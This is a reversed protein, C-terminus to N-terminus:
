EGENLYKNKRVEKIIKLDEDTLPKKSYVCKEIFVALGKKFDILQQKDFKYLGNRRFKKKMNGGFLIIAINPLLPFYLIEIEKTEPDPTNCAVPNDCTFISDSKDVFVGISMDSILDLIFSFLSDGSLERLEKTVSVTKLLVYNDIDNNSATIRKDAKLYNSFGNIVYPTRLMQSVIYVKWFAKEEKSLFCNIKQNEVYFAKNKLQKRFESFLDEIKSFENEILNKAVIENNENKFEYLNKRKCMTIISCHEVFKDEDCVYECVSKGNRSFGKLYTRPIFHEEKKDQEDNSM